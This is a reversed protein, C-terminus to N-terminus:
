EEDKLEDKVDLARDRLWSKFPRTGMPYKIKWMDHLIINLQDTLTIRNKYKECGKKHTELEEISDVETGCWICEFKPEM